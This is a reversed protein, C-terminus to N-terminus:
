NDDQPSSTALGLSRGALARKARWIAFQQWAGTALAAAMVVGSALLVRHEVSNSADTAYAFFRTVLYAGFVLNLWRSWSTGSVTALFADVNEPAPATGRWMARRVDSRRARDLGDYPLPDSQQKRFGVILGTWAAALGVCLGVVVPVASAEPHADALVIAFAAACSATVALMVLLRRRGRQRARLLQEPSLDFFAGPRSRDASKAVLVPAATVVLQGNRMTGTVAIRDGARVVERGDQAVVRLPRTELQYPESWVLPLAAKDTRDLWSTSQMGALVGEFPQAPAADMDPGEAPNRVVPAM